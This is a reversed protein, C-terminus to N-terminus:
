KRGNEFDEVYCNYWIQYKYKLTFLVKNLINKLIYKNM